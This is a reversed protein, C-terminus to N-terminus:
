MFLPVLILFVSPATHPDCYGGLSNKLCCFYVCVNMPNVVRKYPHTSNGRGVQYESLLFRLDFHSSGDAVCSDIRSLFIKYMEKQFNM